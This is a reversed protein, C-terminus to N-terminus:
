DIEEQLRRRQTLPEVVEEANEIMLTVPDNIFRFPVEEYRVSNNMFDGHVICHCTVLKIYDAYSELLRHNERYWIAYDMVGRQNKRVIEDLHRFVDRVAKMVAARRQAGTSSVQGYRNVTGYRDDGSAHILTKMFQNLGTGQWKTMTFTYLHNLFGFEAVASKANNITVEVDVTSDLLTVQITERVM